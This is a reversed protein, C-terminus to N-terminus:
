KLISLRCTNTLIFMLEYVVVFHICVFHTCFVSQFMVHELDLQFINLSILKGLNDKLLGYHLLM